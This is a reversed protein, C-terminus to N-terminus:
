YWAVVPYPTGAVQRWRTLVDQLTNDLAHGMHLQGTVNPPPMVICFPEGDKNNDCSFYGKEKWIQYWKQEVEQPAYTTALKDKKLEDM